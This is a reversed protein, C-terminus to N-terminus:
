LKATLRECFEFSKEALAPDRALPSPLVLSCDSDFYKGTIGDTEEAVACYITSVAGEEASKFFFIGTISFILRILWHYYRMVETKVVGPHLSNVTVGTDQLRRALEKTWLINYLKTHNYSSDMGGTLNNGHFHAFHVQGKWHNVSSVNVIRAPACRKMLDLLLNTLLFPGVHNTAFTVELGDTTIRRPMGFHATAKGRAPLGRCVASRVASFCHGAPASACEQQRKPPPHGANGSDGAGHQSMRPDCARRAPCLGTSRIEWDWHQIRHCHSDQRQAACSLGPSGLASEAAGSGGAGTNCYFSGM